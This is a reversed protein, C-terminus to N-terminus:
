EKLLKKLKFTFSITRKIFKVKSKFSFKWKSEGHLREGFFVPFRIIKYNYKKAIYYACLDFSFDEPPKKMLKLFSKHFINPQANIDYMGKRLVITEFISMGFTFFTDFLKRGYRNGKIYNKEPNKQKQIIKLAKITDEPSTQLDAHTWGIFNGKCVDLGKKIAAGYGPIPQFVSRAFKYKKLEKKLVQRTNDKSNNDVIVLEAKENFDKFTKEFKKLVLPINEAENYCPIVISLIIKKMQQLIKEM